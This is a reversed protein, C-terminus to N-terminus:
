RGYRSRAEMPIVSEVQAAHRHKDETLGDRVTFVPEDEVFLVAPDDTKSNLVITDGVVLTALDEAPIEGRGLEVRLNADVNVLQKLRKDQDTSERGRERSAWTQVNLYQMVPELTFYPYCLNILGSAHQANVEFAILLVTDSPAAVQM